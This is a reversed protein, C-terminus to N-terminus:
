TSELTATQQIAPIQGCNLSLKDHASFVGFMGSLFLNSKKEQSPPCDKEGQAVGSPRSVWCGLTKHCVM